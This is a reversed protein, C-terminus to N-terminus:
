KSSSEGAAEEADATIRLLKRGTDETFYYQLGEDERYLVFQPKYSLVGLELVEGGTQAPGPRLTIRVRARVPKGAYREVYLAQSQRWREIFADIRDASLESSPPQATWKGNERRLVLEPLEWAVPVRDAALVRPSIFNVYRYSGPTLYQAPILHITDGYRVYRANKFPHQKGGQIEEQGLWVRAKPKELGYKSISDRDARLQLESPATALRLLSQVRLPNARARVPTLLFWSTGRRELTLVESDPREIRIAEIQEPVLATLLPAIPGRDARRKSIAVLALVAVLGVLGLNLLWRNRM